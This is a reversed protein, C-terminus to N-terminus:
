VFRFHTTLRGQSLVHMALGPARAEDATDPPSDWPLMLTSRVGPAVILPVGAFTTACPTHAHGCLLYTPGSRGALVDALRQEGLQRMPDLVNSYVTVPPHHLGILLTTGAQTDAVVSALWDRTVDALYGGPAGPVTTDCLALVADDFRWLQNAPDDASSTTGNTGSFGPGGMEAVLGRFGNRQDHNGPLFAVPMPLQSFIEAAEAYEEAAGHDALDGTVLVADPLQRLHRIFDVVSVVRDHAVSGGDLHLDSMQALLM